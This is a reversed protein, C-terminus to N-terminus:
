KGVEPPTRVVVFEDVGPIAAGGLTRDTSQWGLRDKGLRTIINTASAPQGDQRVGEVKVTWPGSDSYRFSVDKFRVEGLLEDKRLAVAGPAESAREGM